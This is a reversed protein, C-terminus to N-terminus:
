VGWKDALEKHLRAVESAPLGAIKYFLENKEHEYNALRSEYSMVRIGKEGLPTRAKKKGM